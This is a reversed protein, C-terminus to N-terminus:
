DEETSNLAKLYFVAKPTRMFPELHKKLERKAAAKPLGQRAAVLDVLGKKDPNEKSTEMRLDCCRLFEEAPLGTSQFAGLVDACSARGAKSKLEYGPISVGQKIVMEKAHYKVGAAWKELHSALALAKAMQDPTTIQSAHYQELKWDERGAAVTQARENLAPCSVRKSCWGCYDCPRPDPNARADTVIKEVLPQTTEPTFILVQVRQLAAFLLHVQIFEIGPMEQFRALAYVAMQATYDRERWKLDFIDTGCIADPTGPIETFDELIANCSNEEEWTIPHDALNAKLRIYDAAWRIGTQEEEDLLELMTDDGAFHNRLATHRDTGSETWATDGSEFAPCQALAPLSSARLM